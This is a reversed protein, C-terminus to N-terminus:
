VSLKINYCPISDVGRNGAPSLNSAETLSLFSLTPVGGGVLILFSLTSVGGGGVSWNLFGSATTLLSSSGPVLPTPLWVPSSSSFYNNNSSSLKKKKKKMYMQIDKQGDM